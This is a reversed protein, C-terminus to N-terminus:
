FFFLEPALLNFVEWEIRKSSNLPQFTPQVGSNKKFLVSKTPATMLSVDTQFADLSGTM